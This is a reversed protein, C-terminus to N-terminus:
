YPDYWIRDYKGDGYLWGRKYNRDEFDVNFFYSAETLSGNRIWQELLYFPYFAVLHNETKFIRVLLPGTLGGTGQTIIKTTGCYGAFYVLLFGASLVKFRHKKLFNLKM